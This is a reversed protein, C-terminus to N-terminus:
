RKRLGIAHFAADRKTQALLEDQRYAKSQIQRQEEWSAIDRWIEPSLEDASIRTSNFRSAALSRLGIRLVHVYRRLHRLMAASFSESQEITRM